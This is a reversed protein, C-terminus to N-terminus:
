QRLLHPAYADLLSVSGGVLAIAAGFVILFRNFWREWRSKCGGSALFLLAPFIYVIASGMVAGCFSVVVGANEMRLAGLTPIMVLATTLLRQNGKSLNNGELAEFYLCVVDRSVIWISVYRELIPSQSMTACLEIFLSVRRNGFRSPLIPM